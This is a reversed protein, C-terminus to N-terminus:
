DWKGYSCHTAVFPQIIICVCVTISLFLENHQVIFVRLSTRQKRKVNQCHETNSTYLSIATTFKYWIFIMVISQAQVFLLLVTHEKELKYCNRTCRIHRCPFQLNLDDLHYAWPCCFTIHSTGITTWWCNNTWPIKLCQCLMPHPQYINHLSTAKWGSENRPSIQLTRKWKISSYPSLPSYSPCSWPHMRFNPNRWWLQNSIHFRPWALQLMMNLLVVYDCLSQAFSWRLIDLLNNCKKSVTIWLWRM